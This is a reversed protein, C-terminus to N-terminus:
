GRPREGEYRARPRILTGSAYQEVAHAVWGASRGLAFITLPADAPLDLAKALVVLAFDITPHEGSAGFVADILETALADARVTGARGLLERGRPDGLPYLKHGFGPLDEGRRVRSAVAERGSDLAQAERYFAAVRETAGGHLPGQLAALGASVAQHVGSGASAVCRATFTSVNLEHDACLILAAEIDSAAGPRNWGAALRESISGELRGTVATALQRLLQLGTHTASAPRTDLARPDEAALIATLASLVTITPYGGLADLVAAVHASLRIPGEEMEDAQAGLALWAAVEEFKWTRSLEIANLGRYYLQGSEILTIRSAPV